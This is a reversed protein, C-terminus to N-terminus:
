HTNLGCPFSNHSAHSMGSLNTLFTVDKPWTDWAKTYHEIAEEFKRAKYAVNGQQKEEEAAKKAAAEEDDVNMAEEKEEQVPEPAPKPAAKPEPQPEATSSSPFSQPQSSGAMGPPM